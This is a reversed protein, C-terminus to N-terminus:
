YLQQGSAQGQCLHKGTFKAFNRLVSEECFVEYRSSKDQTLWHTEQLFVFGNHHLNNKLYEFIKLRKLSSCIGKVDDSIFNDITNSMVEKKVSLLIIISVLKKYNIKFSVRLEDLIHGKSKSYFIIAWSRFNNQLIGIFVRIVIETINSKSIQKRLLTTRNQAIILFYTNKFIGCLDYSLVNFLSELM